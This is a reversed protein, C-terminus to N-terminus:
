KKYLANYVINDSAYMILEHEIVSNKDYIKRLTNVVENQTITNRLHKIIKLKSISAEATAVSAILLIHLAIALNSFIELFDSKALENLIDL